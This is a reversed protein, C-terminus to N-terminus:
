ETRRIVDRRATAEKGKHEGENIFIKVTPESSTGDLISVHTGCPLGCEIPVPLNDGTKSLVTVKIQTEGERFLTAPQSANCGAILLMALVSATTRAFHM